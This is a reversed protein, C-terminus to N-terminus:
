RRCVGLVSATVPLGQPACPDTQPFRVFGRLSDDLIGIIENDRSVRLSNGIPDLRFGPNGPLIASYAGTLEAPTPQSWLTTALLLFPLKTM